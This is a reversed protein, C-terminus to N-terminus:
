IGDYYYPEIFPDLSIAREELLNVFTDTVLQPAAYRLQELIEKRRQLMANIREKMLTASKAVEWSSGEDKIKESTKFDQADRYLQGLAAQIAVLNHLILPVEPDTYYEWQDPSYASPPTASAINLAYPFADGGILRLEGVADAAVHKLMDDSYAPAASAYAVGPDLERRIRPIFIRVDALDTM